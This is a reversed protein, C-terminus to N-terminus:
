RVMAGRNMDAIAEPSFQRVEGHKSRKSAPRIVTSAPDASFVSHVAEVVAAIPAAIAEVAEVAADVAAIVVAEIELAVSKCKRLWSVTRPHDTIWEATVTIRHM